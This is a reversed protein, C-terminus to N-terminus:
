YSVMYLRDFQVVKLSRLHDRGGIELDRCKEVNFIESVVRSLAMTVISRWYSTVYARDFSSMDLSRFQRVGLGSKLTVANKFDFMEFVTNKKTPLTALFDYIALRNMDTGIVRLSM